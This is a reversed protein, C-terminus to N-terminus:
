SGVQVNLSEATENTPGDIKRITDTAPKAIDKSSNRLAEELKAITVANKGNKELLEEVKQRWESNEKERNAQCEGYRANVEQAEALALTLKEAQAKSRLKWEGVEEELSAQNERYKTENGQVEALMLNLRELASEARKTEEKLEQRMASQRRKYKDIQAIHKAKLHHLADYRAALHDFAQKQKLLLGDAEEFAHQADSLDQQLKCIYTGDPLRTRERELAENQRELERCEDEKLAFMDNQESNIQYQTFYRAQSEKFAKMYKQCLNKLEKIQQSKDDPTQKKAIYVAKIRGTLNDKTEMEKQLMRKLEDIEEDKIALEDKLDDIEEDKSALEAKHTLREEDLKDEAERELYEDYCRQTKPTKAKM